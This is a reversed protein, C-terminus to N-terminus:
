FRYVLTIGEPKLGASLRGALMIEDMASKNHAARILGSIFLPVGVSIYALGVLMMEDSYFNSYYSSDNVLKTSIWVFEIGIGVAALAFGAVQRGISEEYLRNYYYHDHGEYLGPKVNRKVYKDESGALAPKLESYVGNKIMAVARMWCKEGEKIYEVINGDTVKEICCAAILKSGDAPFVIDNCVDQSYLSNAIVALASILLLSKM